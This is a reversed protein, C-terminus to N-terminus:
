FQRLYRLDASYLLRLDPIKLGPKMMLFREVGAGFAFGSYVEPDINGAKLVNPHVMGAGALELWGEKCVKCGKGKCIDCSIDIEFSPETFPFNHPRLRVERDKGFYSHVLFEITGKLHALSIKKDVVLGEFQHFMPVHSADSQRRYTKSINIMRIPPQQKFNMERVQGSSTHPTLLMKGYKAHKPADIWFTEWNDRAPHNESFNLSGFAHWDYEVEYYRRRVFGLQKFIDAIEEIAQTILHLSGYTPEIGPMTNDFWKESNEVENFEQLKNNLAENLAQLTENVMVGVQKREDPSLKGLQKTLKPLSGNKGLYSIRVNELEDASTAAIIHGLAQNRLNRIEDQM